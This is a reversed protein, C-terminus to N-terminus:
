ENSNIINDRRLTPESVIMGIFSLRYSGGWAFVGDVVQSCRIDQDKSGCKWYRFHSLLSIDVDEKTQFFVDNRTGDDNEFKITLQKNRTSLEIPTTKLKVKREGTDDQITVREHGTKGRLNFRFSESFRLHIIISNSNSM